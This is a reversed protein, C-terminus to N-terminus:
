STASKASFRVIHTSADYTGIYVPGLAYPRGPAFSVSGGSGPITFNKLSEGARTFNQVTLSKGAAKAIAAFLAVNECAQM